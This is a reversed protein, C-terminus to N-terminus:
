PRHTVQNAPPSALLQRLAALVPKEPSPLEVALIAATQDTALRPFRPASFRITPHTQRLAACLSEAASKAAAYEAFQPPAEEVFSSSACLVARLDSGERRVAQFTDDFGRLYYDSLEDFKTQSFHGKTGPTIFPTAFYCLLTPKWDGLKAVLTGSDTLVNYAFCTAARGLSSIENAVRQADQEGRHYTLKVDAGGAALLKATVEGLGRSGGVVLAREARFEDPVVLASLAASSAQAKPAPRIVATLSGTLGPADVHLTIRPIRDDYSDVGYCLESPGAPNAEALELATFLSNLGPAEMGVVRTAALLTAIQEAPLQRLANPFLRTAIARDLCLSLRGSDGLLAREARLRCESVPAPQNPIPTGVETQEKWAAKATLVKAGDCNVLFKVSHPGEVSTALDIKQGLFVPAPFKATLSTLRFTRPEGGVWQDLAALLVHVGHVVQRGYLLRRSAVPDVHIPNYDGSLQAFLRQSHDSLMRSM